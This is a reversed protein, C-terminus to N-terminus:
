DEPDDYHYHDQYASSFRAIYGPMKQEDRKINLSGSELLWDYVGTGLPYETLVGRLDNEVVWRDGEERSRFVARPLIGWGEQFVWISSM